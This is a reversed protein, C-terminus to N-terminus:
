ELMKRQIRASQDPDMLSLLHSVPSARGAEAARADMRKLIDLIMMDDQKGLIKVSDEPPMNELQIAVQDVRKDYSEKDAKEKEFNDIMNKTDEKDKAVNEKEIEIARSQEELNKKEEEFNRIREDLTQWKKDLEVKELLFPDEIKATPTERLFPVQEIIQRYDIIQLMDLVYISLFAQGLNIFLLFIIRRNRNM